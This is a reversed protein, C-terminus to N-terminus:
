KAYKLLDEHAEKPFTEKVLALVYEKNPKLFKLKRNLSHILTTKERINNKHNAFEIPDAYEGSKRKNAKTLNLWNQSENLSSEAESIQELIKNIQKM